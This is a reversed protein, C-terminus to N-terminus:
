WMQGEVGFIIVAAKWGLRSNGGIKLAPGETVV